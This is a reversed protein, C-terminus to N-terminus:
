GLLIKNKIKKLTEKDTIPNVTTDKYYEDKMFIGGCIKRIACNKCEPNYKYKFWEPKQELIDREDLFVIKRSEDKVIKRVETNVWEYWPIKCLPIKEIRFTNWISELYWFTKVLEDTITNLDPLSELAEKTKKMVKPDLINWVFHKIKPNVKKIFLVNKYLHNQNFKSIATTIQTEIKYKKLNLLAKIMNTYAGDFDRIYDNLNQEYTYRSIHVIEIWIDSIRETFDEKAFGTGNSIIRPKLWYKHVMEIIEFVKPHITPEWWTLIVSDYWSNKINELWKEVEEMSMMKGFSPNSCYICNHNCIRNIQLYWIVSM